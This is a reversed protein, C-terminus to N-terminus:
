LLIVCCVDLNFNCVFGSRSRLIVLLIVCSIPMDYVVVVLAFITFEIVRKM